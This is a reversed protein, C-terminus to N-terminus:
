EFFSEKYDYDDDDDYCFSKFRQSPSTSLNVVQELHQLEKKKNIEISIGNFKGNLEDIMSEYERRFRIDIKENRYDKIQIQNSLSLMEDLFHAESGGYRPYVNRSFTISHHQGREHPGGCNECCLYQQPFSLSNQPYSNDSFNQNYSSEQEYVLPFQPPCDYGYHSDNGCLECSYSEYQLQPPHTFDNPLGNFSNPNPDDISSNEDRSPCFSCFGESLAYGCWKC